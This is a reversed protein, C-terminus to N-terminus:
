NLSDIRDKLNKIENEMSSVKISFNILTFSFLIGILIYAILEM